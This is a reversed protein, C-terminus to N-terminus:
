PNVNDKPTIKGINPDLSDLANMLDYNVEAEKSRLFEQYRHLMYATSHGMREMQYQEPIGLASMVSAYYHRLGHFSCNVGYEKAIPSFKCTITNPQYRTYGPNDRAEAIKDLVWRPCPVSRTGAFSKTDKLVYANHEDMVLAKNVRILGKDFDIDKTYDLACIESRRLGCIAALLVPIELPTNEIAKFLDMLPQEDPMDLRKRRVSPLRVSVNWNKKAEKISAAVLNWRNVVTKPAHGKAYEDIARQCLEDSLQGIKLPMLRLFSERRYKKYNAMTSPSLEGERRALYADIAEGVTMSLADATKPTEDEMQRMKRLLEPKTPATLHRYSKKGSLLDTGIYVTAEWSGNAKQKPTAM